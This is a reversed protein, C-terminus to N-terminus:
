ASCDMVFKKIQSIRRDIDLPRLDRTFTQKPISKIQNALDIPNDPSFFQVGPQNRLSNLSTVNSAVIPRGSALYEGLKLPSTDKSSRFSKGSNPIVLVDAAQLLDPIHRYEITPRLVVRQDLHLQSIQQQIESAQEPPGGYMVVQYSQPLHVASHILTFIGKHPYLSSTCLIIKKNPSFNFKDRLTKTPKRKTFMSTDVGNQLLVIKSLVSQDTKFFSYVQQNVCVVAKCKRAQYFFIKQSIKRQPVEHVEWILRSKNRCGLPYYPDRTFICAKVRQAAFLWALVYFSITQLGFSLFDLLRSNYRGILHYTDLSYLTTIPIQQKLNYYHQISQKNPNNRKPLILNIDIGAKILSECTKAVQIGHAKESPLRTNTIYLLSKIM